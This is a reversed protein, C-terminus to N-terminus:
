ATPDTLVRYDTARYGFDAWTAAHEAAVVALLHQRAQEPDAPNDIVTVTYGGPEILRLTM